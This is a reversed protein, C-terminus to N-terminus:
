ESSATPSFVKLGSRVFAQGSRLRIPQLPLIELKETGLSEESRQAGNEYPTRVSLIVIKTYKRYLINKIPM